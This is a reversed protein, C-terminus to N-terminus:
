ERNKKMNLANDILILQNKSIKPLDEFAFFGYEIVEHSKKFEGGIFTGILTLDLRSSSRDTRLKMQDEVSVVLGSEELIERELSEFPHEKSKIYGGPLSWEIQRYTHKFLLVQNKKNFIIGTVGILFQDQFIRMVLLQFNTPLSLARWTKALLTKV